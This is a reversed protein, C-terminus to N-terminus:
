PGNEGGPGYNALGAAGGLGAAANLQAPSGHWFRGLRGYKELGLRSGVWQGGGNNAPLKASQFSPDVRYHLAYFDGRNMGNPKLVNFPSDSIARPLGLDKAVAQPLFHHGMGKYPEALYQAQAPSFGQGLFKAASAAETAAGLKPLATSAAGGFLLSGLDWGREGQNQGLAFNRGLEGWFTDAMPTASPDTDVYLQHAKNELDSAVSAPNAVGNKVYNMAGRGGNILRTWAANDAGNLEADDPNMLRSLFLLGEGVGEASHLAGRGLGVVAGISRAAGEALVEASSDTDSWSKSSTTNTPGTPKQNLRQAGIAVVDHPSKAVLNQGAQTADNWAKRGAAEADRGFQAVEARRRDMWDEINDLAGRKQASRGAALEIGRWM